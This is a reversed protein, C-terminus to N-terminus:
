PAKRPSSRSWENIKLGKASEIMEEHVALTSM